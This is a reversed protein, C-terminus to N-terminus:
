RMELQLVFPVFPPIKTRIGRYSKAFCRAKANDVDSLVREIVAFESETPHTIVLMLTVTGPTLAYCGDRTDLHFHNNFQTFETAYTQYEATDRKGQWIAQAARFSDPPPIPADDGIAASCFILAVIGTIGWDRGITKTEM